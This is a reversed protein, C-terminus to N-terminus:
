KKSKLIKKYDPSIYSEYFETQNAFYQGNKTWEKYLEKNKEIAVEILESYYPKNKYQPLIRKLSELENASSEIFKKTQEIERKIKRKEIEQVIIDAGMDYYKDFEARNQFYEKNGHSYLAERCGCDYGVRWRGLIYLDFDVRKNYKCRCDLYLKDAIEKKDPNLSYFIQFYKEPNTSQLEREFSGKLEEFSTKLLHKKDSSGEGRSNKKLKEEYDKKEYKEYDPMTIKSLNYPNQLLQRNYDQFLSDLELSDL